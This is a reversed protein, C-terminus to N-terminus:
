PDIRPTGASPEPSAGPLVVTLRTLGPRSDVTITGRHAEVIAKVLSLGLGTGGASRTRATDGRAFREFVQGQLEVPIGPGDDEVVVVASRGDLDRRVRATVRTGPPTHRRANSLLNSVVQHLRGGDGSVTVPEDPLDLLWHHGPAVVQSDAVSELVLRTLDVEKRELPRGADLRALLLLDDVLTSMRAAEAHVKEMNQVLHDADVRDARRSLEAYGNIVALPTRLEHSADAVFRRVQQESRHREDLAREVHGLLTNLAAGVQGVETAEHTLREPVRATVGVAGEALPLLAVEHATSAVERLPRLQRRVVVWGVAAAAIVGMLALSLEYTLLNRITDDVDGTPLGTVLRAAGVEDVLVRYDGLGALEVTRPGDEAPLRRLAELVEADLTSWTAARNGATIVSGYGSEDSLYATLTGVGQGFSFGDGRGGRGPVDPPGAPLPLGRELAGAARQGTRLLEEDLETTLYSRIAATALVGILVTVVAVLAVATMVLRATLSSPLLRRM